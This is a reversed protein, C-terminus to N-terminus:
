AVNGAWLKHAPDMQPRPHTSMRTPHSSPLPPLVFSSLRQRVDARGGTRGCRLCVLIFSFVILPYPLGFAISSFRMAARVKLSSFFLLLFTTDKKVNNKINVTVHIVSSPSFRTFVFSVFKMPLFVYFNWLPPSLILFALPWTFMLPLSFIFAFMFVPFLIKPLCM